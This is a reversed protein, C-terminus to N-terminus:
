IHKFPNKRGRLVALGGVLLFISAPEPVANIQISPALSYYSTSGFSTVNPQCFQFSFNGTFDNLKLGAGAGTKLAGGTVEFEGQGVVNNPMLFEKIEWPDTLMHAELITENDLLLNNADSVHWLDGVVQVTIGGQFYAAAWSGSHDSILNADSIRVIGNFKYNYESDGYILIDGNDISMDLSNEFAKPLFKNSPGDYLWGMEYDIIMDGVYLMANLPASLIFCLFVGVVGVNKRVGKLEKM